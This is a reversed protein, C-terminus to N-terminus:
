GDLRKLLARTAPSFRLLEGETLLGQTKMATLRMFATSRRMDDFARAIDDNGEEVSSYVKQFRQHSTQGSSECQRSVQTLIRSCLRELAVPQLERLLKWDPEPFENM